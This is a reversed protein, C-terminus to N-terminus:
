PTRLTPNTRHLARLAVGADDHVEVVGGQRLSEFTAQMDSPLGVLALRIGRKAFLPAHTVFVGLVTADLRELHQLNVVVGRVKANRELAEFQDALSLAAIPDLSAELTIVAVEGRQLFFVERSTPGM